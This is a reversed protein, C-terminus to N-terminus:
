IFQENPSTIHASIKTEFAFRTQLKRCGATKASVSDGASAVQSFPRNQFLLSCTLPLSLGPSVAPLGDQWLLQRQLRTRPAGATECLAAVLDEPAQNPLRTSQSNQLYKSLSVAAQSLCPESELIILHYLGLGLSLMELVLSRDDNFMLSLTLPKSHFSYSLWSVLSESNLSWTVHAPLLATINKSFDSPKKTRTHDTEPLILFLVSQEPPFFIDPVASHEM